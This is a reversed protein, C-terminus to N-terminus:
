GVTTSDTTAHLITTLSWVARLAITSLGSHLVVDFSGRSILLCNNTRDALQRHNLLLLLEVLRTAGHMRSSLSPTKYQRAAECVMTLQITVTVGFPQRM